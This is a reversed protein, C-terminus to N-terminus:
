KFKLATLELQGQWQPVGVPGTETIVSINLSQFEVKYPLHELYSVFSMTNAWSGRTELKLRIIEKDDAADESRPEVSVSRIVAAVNQAKGESEIAEIFGVFDERPVFHSVVSQALNELDAQSYKSFEAVQTQLLVVEGKLTVVKKDASRIFNFIVFHLGLLILIAVSLTIIIQKTSKNKM